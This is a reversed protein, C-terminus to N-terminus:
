QLHKIVLPKPGKKEILLLIHKIRTVMFFIFFTRWCSLSVFSTGGTLTNGEAGKYADGNLLVASAFNRNAATSVDVANDIVTGGSPNRIIEVRGVGSGGTSDGLIVLIEKIILLGDGNYKFYGVGSESDSTLTILGTSVNFGRGEIIAQESSSKSVSKTSLRNKSDVEAKHSGGAGDELIM